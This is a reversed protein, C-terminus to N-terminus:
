EKYMNAFSIGEKYYSLNYQYGMVNSRLAIRENTQLAWIEPAETYIIEVAEKYLQDAKAPDM